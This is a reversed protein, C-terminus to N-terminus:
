GNVVGGQERKLRLFFSMVLKVIGMGVLVFQGIFVNEVVGNFFDVEGREVVVFLYQIIIEFVVRVLVSVKEGVIGYRGILRIVGDFMMMDVVFMIYRVDVEFGQECMMSVIEDIIVNRVVEIGFVEVIEWINNIRMRMLDVGLVKFVQKFNLGEIYIVYEDGEKRIIIKGVGFFGKFCYKKVKEVIKRLDFFKMVKKFRVVFMYGEVEFEVSKFLGIFKRVVKEMDFGVKELREFDIEVVYEMNFIDIMEERVLNEFIMGEIRRVVEFVKDRDYCYEEDFYVIMILMLFNKRVDVIEIIRLFGFIVNIEVVGVYYFINFIMQILFEGIFQVVVMGVVEGLEIFVKQYERVIEDIIVQIEDKKFKYKENYEIFKVYFEEKINDLFEVKSVMSKIIKEVVM